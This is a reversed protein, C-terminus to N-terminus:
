IDIIGRNLEDLVNESCIYEDRLNTPIRAYVIKIYTRQHPPM